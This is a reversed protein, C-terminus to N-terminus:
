KIRQMKGNQIQVIYNNMGSVIKETTQKCKEMEKAKKEKEKKNHQKKVNQEKKEM